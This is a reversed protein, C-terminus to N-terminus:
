CNFYVSFSSGRREEINRSFDSFSKKIKRNCVEKMFELVSEFNNAAINGFGRNVASRYKQTLSLDRLTINIDGKSFEPHCVQFLKEIGKKRQDANQLFGIVYGHIRCM